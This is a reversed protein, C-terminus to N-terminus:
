ALLLFLCLFIRARPPHGPQCSAQGPGPQEAPFVSKGGEALASARDFLAFAGGFIFMLPGLAFGPSIEDLFLM